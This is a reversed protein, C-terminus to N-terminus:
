TAKSLFSNILREAERVDKEAMVSILDTPYVTMPRFSNKFLPKIRLVNGEDRIWCAKSGIGEKNMM